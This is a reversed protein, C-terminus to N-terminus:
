IRKYSYKGFHLADRDSIFVYSTTNVLRELLAPCVGMREIEGVFAQEGFELFVIRIYSFVEGDCRALMLLM